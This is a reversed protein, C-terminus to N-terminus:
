VRGTVSCAMEGHAAAAALEAGLAGSRHNKKSHFRPLVHSYLGRPEGSQTLGSYRHRRKANRIGCPRGCRMQAFDHRRESGCHAIASRFDDAESALQSTRRFAAKAACFALPPTEQGHPTSETEMPTLSRRDGGGRDDILISRCDSPSRTPVCCIPTCLWGAHRAKGDSRGPSLLLQL